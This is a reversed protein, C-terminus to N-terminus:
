NRYNSFFLQQENSKFSEILKQGKPSILWNIFNQGANKKVHSHLKPNVLIVGYQNFLLPDGQLLIELNKKNRFTEWTARDSLTYGNLASSINLTAGMGSGVEKYWIVNKSALLFELKMWISKEKIDTGSNDGRSVFISKSEKIKKFASLIGDNEVIRAPNNKPGVLIFDNYMVPFREVGFGKSVFEDELSKAHVFVVDVDGRRGLELAQGTGRTLVRVSIGTQNEFFPLIYSLLGSNETSTTSALTIFV